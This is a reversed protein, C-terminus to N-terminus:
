SGNIGALKVNVVFIWGVMLIKKKVCFIYKINMWCALLCLALTMMMMKM